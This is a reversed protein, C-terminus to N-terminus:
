TPWRCAVLLALALGLVLPPSQIERRNVIVLWLIM